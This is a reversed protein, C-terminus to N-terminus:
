ASLREAYASPATMERYDDFRQTSEPSAPFTKTAQCSRCYGRIRGAAPDELLWHHVCRTRKGPVTQSTTM